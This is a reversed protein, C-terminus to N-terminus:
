RRALFLYKSLSDVDRNRVPEEKKRLEASVEEFEEQTDEPKMHWGEYLM